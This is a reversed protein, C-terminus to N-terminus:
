NVVWEAVKYKWDSNIEKAIKNLKNKQTKAKKEEAFVWLTTSTGQQGPIEGCVAWIADRKKVM